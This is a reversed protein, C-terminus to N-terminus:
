LKKEMWILTKGRRYKLHSLIKAMKPNTVLSYVTKIGKKKLWKEKERLLTGGIGCGRFSPIVVDYIMAAYDPGEIACYGFGVVTKGEQAVLFLGNKNRIAFKFDAPTMFVEKESVRLEPTVKGIKYLAKFDSLRAKRIRM